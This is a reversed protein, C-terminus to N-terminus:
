GMKCEEESEAKLLGVLGIFGTVALVLSLLPWAALLGVIAGVAIILCSIGLLINIVKYEVRFEDLPTGLQYTTAFQYAQSSFLGKGKPSIHHQSPQKPDVQQLLQQKQSPIQQQTPQNADQQLPPSKLQKTSLKLVAAFASAFEKVSPFRDQPKKALAQLVVKDLTPPLSPNITSPPEPDIKNRMYPIVHPLAGQYPTRGTLLKYIMIGLAYQDSAAVPAGEIQEPAMYEFTGRPTASLKSTTAIKAVGFDALLLNPLQSPQTQRRVLFNAPKIDLHLIHQDHAYQLADAAQQLIQAVENPSLPQTSRYRRIWDALSGEPCYPMVMYTISEQGIRQEGAEYLTLIHPHDLMSIARMERQFLRAADKSAQADPYLVPETKMVKIAVQRSLTLDQALYVEGMGGGQIFRTLQYHGLKEGELRM